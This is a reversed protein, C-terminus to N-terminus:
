VATRHQTSSVIRPFKTVKEGDNDTKQRCRCV